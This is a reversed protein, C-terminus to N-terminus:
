SLIELKKYKPIKFSIGMDGPVENCFWCYIRKDRLLEWLMRDGHVPTPGMDKVLKAQLKYFKKWTIKPSMLYLTQIM